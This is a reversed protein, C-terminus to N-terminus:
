LKVLGVRDQFPVGVVSHPTSFAAEDERFVRAVDVQVGVGVGDVTGACLGFTHASFDEGNLTVVVHQVM